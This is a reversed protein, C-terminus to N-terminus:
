WQSRPTLRCRLKIEGGSTRWIERLTMPDVEDQAVQAWLEAEVEHPPGPPPLTCKYFPRLNRYVYLPGGAAVGLLAPPPAAGGSSSGGRPFFPPGLPGGFCGWLQPPKPPPPPAPPGSGSLVALEPGGGAGLPVGVVLKHDGDGHLDALAMCTSFTRLGSMVDDHAALWLSSSEEELVAM